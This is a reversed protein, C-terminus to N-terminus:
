VSVQYVQFGTKLVEENQSVAEELEQCAKVFQDRKEPHIKMRAIFTFAM